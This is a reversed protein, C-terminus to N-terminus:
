IILWSGSVGVLTVKDYANTFSYTTNGEINQTGGFGELELYTTGDFTGNAKFTYQINEYDNNVYSPLEISATGSIFREL